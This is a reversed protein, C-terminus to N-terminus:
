EMLSRFEVDNGKLLAVTKGSPSLLVADVGKALKVEHREKGTAADWVCVSGAARRWSVLAKADPSFGVVRESKELPIRHLTKGGPVDWLHLALRDGESFAVRKGDASFVAGFYFSCRDRQKDLDIEGIQLVKKGTAVDALFLLSFDQALSESIQYMVTKGDQSFGVEYVLGDTLAVKRLKKGTAIEWLGDGYALVEGNPCVALGGYGIEILPSRKGSAFNWLCASITGQTATGPGSKFGKYKCLLVVLDGSNTYSVREPAEGPGLAPTITKGEKGTAVDFIRVAGKGDMVALARGDPSFAASPQRASPRVGDWTWEAASAATASLGALLTLALRM